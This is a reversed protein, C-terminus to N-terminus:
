HQTSVLDVHHTYKKRCAVHVELKSTNQLRDKLGDNKLVSVKLLTPLGNSVIVSTKDAPPSGFNVLPCLVCRDMDFVNTCFCKVVSGSRVRAAGGSHKARM